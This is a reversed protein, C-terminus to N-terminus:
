IQEQSILTNKHNAPMEHETRQILSILRCRAEVLGLEESSYETAKNTDFSILFSSYNDDLHKLYDSAILMKQLLPTKKSNYLQQTEFLIKSTLSKAHQINKIKGNAMKQKPNKNESHIYM